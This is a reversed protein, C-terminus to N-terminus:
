LTISFVTLLIFVDVCLREVLQLFTIMTKVLVFFIYLIIFYLTAVYFNTWTFM